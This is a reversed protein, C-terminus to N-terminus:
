NTENAFFDKLENVSMVGTYRNIVHGEDNVLILTPVGRVKYKSVLEGGRESDIDVSEHSINAEQLNRELVKCPGCTESYIKLVKM